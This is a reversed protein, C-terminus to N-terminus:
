EAFVFPPSPDNLADLPGELATRPPVLEPEIMITLPKPEELLDFGRELM